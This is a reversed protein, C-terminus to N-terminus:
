TDYMDIVAHGPYAYYIRLYVFCFGGAVVIIIINDICGRTYNPKGKDNIIINNNAYTGITNNNNNNNCIVITGFKVSLVMHIHHHYLCAVIAVQIYLVPLRAINEWARLTSILIIRLQFPFVLFGLQDGQIYRIREHL